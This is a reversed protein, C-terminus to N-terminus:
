GEVWCWTGAIIDPLIVRAEKTEAHAAALSALVSLAAVGVLLLRSRMLLNRLHFFINTAAIRKTSDRGDYDLWAGTLLSTLAEAALGWGQGAITLGQAAHLQLPDTHM